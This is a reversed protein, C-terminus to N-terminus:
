CGNCFTGSWSGGRGALRDAMFCRGSTRVIRRLLLSIALFLLLLDCPLVLFMLCHRLLSFPLILPHFLLVRLFLLALLGFHAVLLLRLLRLLSLGSLCLMFRFVRLGSFRVLRCSVFALLRVSVVTGGLWFAPRIWFSFSAAASVIM